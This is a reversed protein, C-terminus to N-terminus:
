QRPNSNFIGIMVMGGDLEVETTYNGEEIAGVALADALTESRIFDSHAALM